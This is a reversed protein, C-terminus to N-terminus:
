PKAHTGGKIRSVAVAGVAVLLLLLGLVEFAFLYKAFLLRALEQTTGPSPPLSSASAGLGLLDGTMFITFTLIGCLFGATAIKLFGSFLGRSFARMETKLDFLMLVMVFLVMVAGAYVVLQVAGIFPANLAFFMFALNVMTMALYLACHIPNNATITKYAFGLILTALIYFFIGATM